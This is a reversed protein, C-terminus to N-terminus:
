YAANNMTKIIRHPLDPFSDDGNYLPVLTSHSHRLEVDRHHVLQLERDSICYEMEAIEELALGQTDWNGNQTLRYIYIM